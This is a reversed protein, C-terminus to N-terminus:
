ETVVLYRERGISTYGVVKAGRPIKANGNRVKIRRVQVRQSGDEDVGSQLEQIRHQFEQSIKIDFEKIWELMEDSVYVNIKPM